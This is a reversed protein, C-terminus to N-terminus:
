MKKGGVTDFHTCVGPAMGWAENDTLILDSILSPFLSCAIIAWEPFEILISGM